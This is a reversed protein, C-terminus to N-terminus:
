FIKTILGAAITTGELRLMVRGLQKIDKYLEMCVPNQTAVEIIASSNKPLCRPKKKIVDGNSRHLQAILKTIVAPQVLSQQHMVVPLGKTIPKAIAFVVVHAQFCTTVPVPNQPNCIIDGISVNQQEIGALTLAVHDGAFANTTSVEDSQLGKVVAIENRPLILVKDGLSVMGTEVHGSVCFGSGTGKFIDNVSFRFPKNVPREPCKFNDIVSVLTPGTYWNSLQEQPKTVINEGSLGSCPVFTVTDKFGAQKLFVSMKDVIENFREKSWNVTDMKNVVVALQSVGLSRLLLAHERTQGGSDFGTEFEGRTADVVLLAVDAQTAGTIMNPIFDKHGPADLLTISKTDTEFKSHGIDMTIGREREEGTEDLVWAYAFSQKGIKKSEQQYKHILRSPVQGLDCLLRGLLTSKGADVHGVVVLHLQQKSDGRKSKYIAQVDVAKEENPKAAKPDLLEPTVHGSAPSQCRPSSTKSSLAKKERQVIDEKSKTEPSNRDSSPSQCRPSLLDAGEVGSLDFGKVVPRTGAPVVKVTSPTSTMQLAPKSSLKNCLNLTVPLMNPMVDTASRVYIELNPSDRYFRGSAISNSFTGDALLKAEKLAMTLDIVCGDPSPSRIDNIVAMPGQSQDEQLKVDMVINNRSLISMSSFDKQLLDMPYRNSSSNSILQRESSRDGTARSPSKSETAEGNDRLSLKPIVFQLSPSRQRERLQKDNLPNSKQLHHATLAALSSFSQSDANHRSPVKTANFNVSQAHSNFTLGALSSFTTPARKCNKPDDTSNSRSATSTSYQEPSDHEKKLSLKPITFTFTNLKDVSVGAHPGSREKNVASDINKPSSEHLITNLAVEANYGSAIIHERLKSETVSDGIVNRISEMCSMLKVKELESLSCKEEDSSASVEIDENDEVIDPETIFSAINQQKSRDFLFQQASPSVCYDDEVSHGYVDDYGDYEDSYNMCRVDRHRSM